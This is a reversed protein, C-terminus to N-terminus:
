GKSLVEELVPVGDAWHLIDHLSRTYVDGCFALLHVGYLFEVDESFRFNVVLSIVYKCYLWICNEICYNVVVGVSPEWVCAAYM